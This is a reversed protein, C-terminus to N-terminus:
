VSVSSCKSKYIVTRICKEKEVGCAKEIDEPVVDATKRIICFLGVISSKSTKNWNHDIRCHLHIEKM